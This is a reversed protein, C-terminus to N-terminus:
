TLFHQSPRIVVFTTGALHYPCVMGAQRDPEEPEELELAGGLGPHFGILKM